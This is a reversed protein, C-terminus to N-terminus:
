VRGFEISQNELLIDRSKIKGNSAREIQLANNTPITGKKIWAQVNQASTKMARAFEAKSGFHDIAAQLCRLDISSNNKEHSM